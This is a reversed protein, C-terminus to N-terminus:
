DDCIFLYLYFIFIIFRTKFQNMDNNSKQLEQKKVALEKMLAQINADKANKNITRQLEYIKPSAGPKQATKAAALEKQMQDLKETLTRLDRTLSVNKDKEVTLQQEM